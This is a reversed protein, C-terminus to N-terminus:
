EKIGIKQINKQAKIKMRLYRKRAPEVIMDIRSLVDCVGSPVIIYCLRAM